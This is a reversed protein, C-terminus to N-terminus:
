RRDTEPYNFPNKEPRGNFAAVNVTDYRNKLTGFSVLMWTPNLDILAQLGEVGDYDDFQVVLTKM